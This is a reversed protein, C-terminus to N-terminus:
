KGGFQSVEAVTEFIRWVVYKIETGIPKGANREWSAVAALRNAEYDSRDAKCGFFVVPINEGEPLMDEARTIRNELSLSM